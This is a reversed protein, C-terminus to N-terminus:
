LSSSFHGQSMKGEVPSWASPPAGWLPSLVSSAQSGQSWKLSCSWTLVKNFHVPLSCLKFSLFQKPGYFLCGESKIIIIESLPFDKTGGNKGSCSLDRSYKLHKKMNVPQIKVSNWSALELDSLVIIWQGMLWRRGQHRFYLNTVDHNNPCMLAAMQVLVRLCVGSICLSLLDTTPCHLVTTEM